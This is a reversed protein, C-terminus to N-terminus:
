AERRNGCDAVSHSPITLLIIKPSIYPNSKYTITYITVGITVLTIQHAPKREIDLGTFGPHSRAAAAHYKTIETGPQARMPMGKAPM